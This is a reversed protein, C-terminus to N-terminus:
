GPYVVTSDKVTMSNQDIEVTVIGMRLNFYHQRRSLEIVEMREQEYVQGKPCKMARAMSRLDGNHTGASERKNSATFVALGKPSDKKLYAKLSEFTRHDHCFHGNLLNDVGGPGFYFTFQARSAVGCIPHMFNTCPHRCCRM